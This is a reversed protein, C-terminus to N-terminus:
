TNYFTYFTIADLHADDVRRCSSGALHGAMTIGSLRLHFDHIHKTKVCGLVRRTLLHRHPSRTIHGVPRQEQAKAYREQQQDAYQQNRQTERSILANSCEQGQSRQHRVIKRQPQKTVADLTTNRKLYFLM